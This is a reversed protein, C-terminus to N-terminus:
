IHDITKKLDRSASVKDQLSPLFACILYLMDDPLIGTDVSESIASPLMLPLLITSKQMEDSRACQARRFIHYVPNSIADFHDQGFQTTQAETAACSFQQWWQPSSPLCVFSATLVDNFEDLPERVTVGNMDLFVKPSQSKSVKRIPVNLHVRRQVCVFDIRVAFGRLESQFTLTAGLASM